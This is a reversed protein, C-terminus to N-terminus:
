PWGREHRYDQYKHQTSLFSLKLGVNTPFMFLSVFNKEVGPPRGTAGGGCM